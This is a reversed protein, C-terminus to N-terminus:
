FCAFMENMTDSCCEPYDLCSGITPDNLWRLDSCLNPLMICRGDVTPLLLKQPYCLAATDGSDAVPYDDWFAACLRIPEQDSDRWCSEGYNVWFIDPVSVLPGCGLGTDDPVDTDLVQHTDQGSDATVDTDSSDDADDSVLTDSDTADDPLPDSQCSPM